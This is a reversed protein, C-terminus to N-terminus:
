FPSNYDKLLPFSLDRESVIPTEVGWDFGFSEEDIGYDCNKQYCSTQAYNVISNDKLSLFGHAFGKPIYLCRSDKGNLEISFFQGYTSSAKRLDLVVDLIIGNSVYVIKAHEYPPIQFHMGRRVGKINKSYYFEKFDTELNNEIFYDYNYIKQFVGRSDTFCNTELIYLGEFQTKILNMDNM